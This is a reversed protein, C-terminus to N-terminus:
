VKDLDVRSFETDEAVGRLRARERSGLVAAQEEPLARGAKASIVIQDPEALNMLRAALNLDSGFVDEGYSTREIAVTALHLSFRLHLTRHGPTTEQWQSRNLTGAFPLVNAV